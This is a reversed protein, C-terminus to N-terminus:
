VVSKRDRSLTFDVIWINGNPGSGVCIPTSSPYVWCLSSAADPCNQLLGDHSADEMVPDDEELNDSDNKRGTLPATQALTILRHKPASLNDSYHHGTTSSSIISKLEYSGDTRAVVVQGDKTSTPTFASVSGPIYGMHRLRHVRADLTIPYDKKLPKKKTVPSRLSVATSTITAKQETGDENEVVIATSELSSTAVTANKTRKSKQRKRKGEPSFSRGNRDSSENNNKKTNSEISDKSSNTKSKSPYLQTRDISDKKRNRKKGSSTPTEPHSKGDKEGNITNKKPTAKKGTNVKTTPSKPTKSRSRKNSTRASRLSSHAIESQSSDERSASNAESKKSPSSPPSLIESARKIGNGMKRLTLRTM